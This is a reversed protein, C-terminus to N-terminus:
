VNVVDRLSTRVSSNIECQVDDALGAPPDVVGGGFEPKIVRGRAEQNSEGLGGDIEFELAEVQRPAQGGIVFLLRESM